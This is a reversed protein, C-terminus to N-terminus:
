NIETRYVKRLVIRSARTRDSASDNLADERRRTADARYNISLDRIVAEFAAESSLGNTSTRDHVRNQPKSPVKRYLRWLIRALIRDSRMEAM